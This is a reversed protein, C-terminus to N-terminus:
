ACTLRSFETFSFFRGTLFPPRHYAHIRVKPVDLLPRIVWRESGEHGFWGFGRENKGMAMGFRRVPRMGCGLVTGGSGLPMLLTEIKDNAHDGSSASLSAQVLSRAIRLARRQFADNGAQPM